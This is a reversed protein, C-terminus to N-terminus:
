NVLLFSGSRVEMRSDWVLVLHVFRDPLSYVGSEDMDSVGVGSVVLPKGLFLFDRGDVVNNLDTTVLNNLKGVLNGTKAGEEAPKEAVKTSSSDGSASTARKPKPAAGEGVATETEADSGPEPSSAISMTDPTTAASSAPTAGSSTEAKVRIKLAQNFVLQTIIAETQVLLRTQTSHDTQHLFFNRQYTTSVAVFIYWQVAVSGLM